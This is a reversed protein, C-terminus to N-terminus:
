NLPRQCTKYDREAKAKEDTIQLYCCDSGLQITTILYTPSSQLCYPSIHIDSIKFVVNQESYAILIEPHATSKNNELSSIFFLDWAKPLQQFSTFHFKFVLQFILLKFLLASELLVSFFLPFQPLSYFISHRLFRDWQFVWLFFSWTPLQSLM